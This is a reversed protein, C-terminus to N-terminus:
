DFVRRQDIVGTFVLQGLNTLRKGELPVNVAVHPQREWGTLRADAPLM